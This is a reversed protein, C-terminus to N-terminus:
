STELAHLGEDLAATAREPWGATQKHVDHKAHELCVAARHFALHKAVEPRGEAVYTRLFVGAPGDLARMSGRCRLALRQLGVMFTAVDHSPDAPRHKDWDVAVTRGAACIIQHHTYDGHITVPTARREPAAAQLRQLLAGAKVAFPEGVSAVRRVWQEISPLPGDLSVSPEARPAIAHFRALWRACREAVATRESEDESLLAETATRGEVKEQLLLRLGPIYATAQPISYEDHPGMGARELERMFRYVHSRDKAYVKGILGGGRWSVEVVCRKGRHHRLLRVDLDEFDDAHTRLCERVHARLRPPDMVTSLMPIAPDTLAIM